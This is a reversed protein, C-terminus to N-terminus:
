QTLDTLHLEGIIMKKQNLIKLVARKMSM